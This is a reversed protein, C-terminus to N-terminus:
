CTQPTSHCATTDRTRWAGVLDFNELAFGIPDMVQHCNACVPNTRHREMQERM